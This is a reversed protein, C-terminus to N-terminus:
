ITGGYVYLVSLLGKMQVSFGEFKFILILFINIERKSKISDTFLQKHLLESQASHMVHAGGM